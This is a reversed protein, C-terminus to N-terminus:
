GINRGAKWYFMSYHTTVDNEIDSTAIVDWRHSPGGVSQSFYRGSVSLNLWFVKWRSIIILRHYTKPNNKDTLPLYKESDTPPRILRRSTIVGLSDRRDGGCLCAVSGAESRLTLSVGM